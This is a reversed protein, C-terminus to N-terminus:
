LFSISQFIHITFERFVPGKLEQNELVSESEGERGKHKKKKAKTDYDVLIKDNSPQPSCGIERVFASIYNDLSDAAHSESFNPQSFLKGDQSNTM